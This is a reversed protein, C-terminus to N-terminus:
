EVHKTASTLIYSGLFSQDADVGIGFIGARKVADLGGLGCGGAVMFIVRTHRAIQGLATTKCKAQDSFTPDGAYNNLVTVHKNVRKACYNYGAFYRVIAPVKNAGIASIVNKHERKAELGAINGVLCGAEQER